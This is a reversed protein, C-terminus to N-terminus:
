RKHKAKAQEKIIAEQPIMLVAKFGNSTQEWPTTGTVDLLQLPKMVPMRLIRYCLRCPVPPM